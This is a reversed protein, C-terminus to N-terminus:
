HRAHGPVKGVISDIVEPDSFFAKPPLDAVISGARVGIVRTAYRAILEMDHEVLVLSEVGSGKAASLLTEMVRYKDASSIGSTPEDLLMLRPRLTLASAIDVLKKEGQSLERCPVDLRHSLGFAEAIAAVADRQRRFSGAPRLLSFTRGAAAFAGTAIMDAVTFTPFVTVLQFSRVLGRRALAAPGLGKVSRGEFVVDGGTPRHLGTLTNVLTTKGAGNPGVVAVVEGRGVDFSVDRLAVFAGYHKALGSARLLVETM